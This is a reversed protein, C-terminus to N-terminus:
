CCENGQLTSRQNMPWVKESVVERVQTLDKGYRESANFVCMYVVEKVSICISQIMDKCVPLRPMLFVYDREMVTDTAYSNAKLAALLAAM